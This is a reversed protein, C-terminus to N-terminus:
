KAANADKERWWSGLFAAAALFLPAAEPDDRAADFCALTYKVLHADEHVAAFSALHTRLDPQMSAPTFYAVSAAEDPALDSIDDIAVRVQPPRWAAHIVNKGLTARFALVHTAAIMVLRAPENSLDANALIAQPLTLCHTWGYPAEHRDDQLMALAAVRLMARRAQPASIAGAFPSLLRQADGSAEVALLTPAISTSTAVVRPPNLLANHLDAEAANTDCESSKSRLAAEQWTLRQASQSVLKRIPARLLGAAGTVAHDIRPLFSLLIPAHAAAGLMPAIADVLMARLQSITLQSQLFAIAADAKEVNGSDVSEIFIQQAIDTNAYRQGPAPAEEGMAAYRPAISAIRRRADDRAAESVQQLLLFRAALELPAHLVFSSSNATKPAAIAAAVASALQADSWAQAHSQLWAPRAIETNSADLPLARLLQAEATM